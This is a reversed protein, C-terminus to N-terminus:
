SKAQALNNPQIIKRAVSHAEEFKRRVVETRVLSRYRRLMFVTNDAPDAGSRRILVPRRGM